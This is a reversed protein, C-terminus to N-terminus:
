RSPQTGNSRMLTDLGLQGLRKPDSFVDIEVIKGGSITFGIVVFPRGEKM